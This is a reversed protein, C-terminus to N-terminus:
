GLRWPACVQTFFFNATESAVLIPTAIKYSELGMMGVNLLICLSVFRESARAQGASYLAMRVRSSEPADFVYPLQARAPKAPPPKLADLAFAAANFTHVLVGVGVSILFFAGMLIIFVYLIAIFSSANVSPGTTPSTSDMATYM